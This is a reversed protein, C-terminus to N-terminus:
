LSPRHIGNLARDGRPLVEVAQEADTGIGGAVLDPVRIPRQCPPMMRIRIGRLVTCAEM